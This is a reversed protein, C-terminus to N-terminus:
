KAVIISILDDATTASQEAVGLKLTWSITATGGENIDALAIIRKSSDAGKVAKGRTISEGAKVKVRGRVCVPCMAGVDTDRVAIGICNQDSTAPDVKGDANLYVPDGKSIAAAAEYDIVLAGSLPELVDGISLNPLGTLDAM